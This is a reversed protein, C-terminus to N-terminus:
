TAGGLRVPRTWTLGGSVIDGATGTVLQDILSYSWSTDLRLFEADSFTTTGVIGSNSIVGFRGYVRNDLSLSAGEFNLAEGEADSKGSFAGAAFATYNLVTGFGDTPAASKAHSSADFTKAIRASDGLAIDVSQASVDYAIQAGPITDLAVLTEPTAAGELKIGLEALEAATAALRGDPYQTFAGILNVPQGNISVELQLALGEEAPQAAAPVLSFATLLIAAALVSTRRSLRQPQKFRRM